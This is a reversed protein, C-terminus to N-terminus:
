DGKLAVVPAIRTARQAPILCSLVAVVVLSSGAILVAVLDMDPVNAVQAQLGATAGFALLGGLVVGGVSLKLGYALFQSLTRGPEAGLAARLGIERTRQTVTFAIVGYVGLAALFLAALGFGGMLQAAFRSAAEEQEFNERVTAVQFIPINPDFARVAAQIPSLEPAGVSKALLTFGREPRQAFPYYADNSTVITGPPSVRSGHNADAVVGVVTWDLNPPIPAGPPQFAHYRKGIPDEGPWLENAMSESVVAVFPSGLRDSSLIGRGKLLPIGLDELTGPGVAHRRGLPSDSLRDVEMGEPVSSQFFFSLGPRGPGWPQVWEIGPVASVREALQEAAAIMTLSDGYAAAPLNVRMTLINETAFGSDAQRVDQFSRVLLASAALLITATALEFLVLGNRLRAGKRDGVSRGGGSLPGRLDVGSVKLAPFLGFVAGSVLTVLLAAGLVQLNVGVDSTPPLQNPVLRLIAPLAMSAATIGLAGGALALILSEITLLRFLRGRGAGLALQVAMEQERSAGRVLLLNVVNFCAIFLLVVAGGLLTLVPGRIGQTSAETYPRVLVGFGRNTDPFDEILRAAIGDLDAQAQEASVGARLMGIAGFSRWRRITVVDDGRPDIQGAMVAPVIIDNGGGTAGVFPDRYSASLVGTVTFPTGSLNISSGVVDRDGGFRTQWADYSLVALPHGGPVINDERGFLRGIVAEAGLVEFFEADAFLAALQEAGDSGTLTLAGGRVMAIAELTTQSDKWDRGNVYSVSVGRETGEFRENIAVIRESDAYPLPALLVGYAVSYIATTAGIGLGLTLIVVAAFGPAKSLSRFARLADRFIGGMKWNGGDPGMWTDWHERPISVALDIVARRWVRAREGGGRVENLSTRLEREVERGFDRRFDLPFFGILVRFAWPARIRGEEYEQDM